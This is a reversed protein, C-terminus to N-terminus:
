VSNLNINFNIDHFTSGFFFELFFDYFGPRVFNLTM